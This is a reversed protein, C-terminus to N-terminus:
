TGPQGIRAAALVAHGALLIAGAGLVAAACPTRPTTRRLGVAGLALATAVALPTAVAHKQVWPYLSWRLERRVTTGRVSGGPLPAYLNHGENPAKPRDTVQVRYGALRFFADGLLPDIRDLWSLLRAATGVFVERAPHEAAHLIADVVLEPAYVPPFAKPTVGLFSRAHEFIPTNVAAPKITTVRVPSREKALEARLADLWGALAHKSAAYATQLPVGRDAEVSGLCILTGASEELYPLAAKAGHIQGMLNVDLVRRFDELPTDRFTAYLSVAANNVWTDIRGFEEVARRALAVVQDFDTVDTAVAIATGGDERIEEAIRELEPLNRAALVVRAGRRAAERATALGIGSSAGTIVIVQESIPVAM